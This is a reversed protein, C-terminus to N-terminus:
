LAWIKQLCKRLQPEERSKLKHRTSMSSVLCGDMCIYESPKPLLAEPKGTLWQISPKQSQCLWSFEFCRLLWALGVNVNLASVWPACVQPQLQWRPFRTGHWPKDHHKLSTFRTSARKNTKQLPPFRSQFHANRLISCPLTLKGGVSSALCCLSFPPGVEM